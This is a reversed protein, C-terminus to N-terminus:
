KLYLGIITSHNLEKEVIESIKSIEALKTEVASPDQESQLSLLEVTVRAVTNQMNKEDLIAKIAKFIKAVKEPRQIKLYASMLEVQYTFGLCSDEKGEELENYLQESSKTYLKLFDEAKYEEGKM